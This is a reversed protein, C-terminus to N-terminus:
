TQEPLEQMPCEGESWRTILGLAHYGAGSLALEVRDPKGAYEFRRLEENTTFGPINRLVDSGPWFYADWEDM